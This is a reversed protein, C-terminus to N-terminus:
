IRRDVMITTGGELATGSRRYTSEPSNMRSLMSMTKAIFERSQNLLMVNTNRAEAIRDNLSFIIDKLRLLREAQNEDAFELLRAVTLDGEVANAKKIAAILEERRRNLEQSELLKQRQLETIEDLVDVNNTVLVEKQRDLLELFDEFLLAEASIIQILENIMDSTALLKRYLELRRM